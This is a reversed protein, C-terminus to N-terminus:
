KHVYYSTYVTYVDVQPPRYASATLTGNVMVHLDTRSELSIGVWVIVLRM